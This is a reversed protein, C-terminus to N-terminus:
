WCTNDEVSLEALLRANVKCPDYNFNVKLMQIERQLRSIDTNCQQLQIDKQKLEDEREKLTIDKERLQDTLINVTSIHQQERLQLNTQLQGIEAQLLFFLPVRM